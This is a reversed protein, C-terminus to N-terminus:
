DAMTSKCTLLKTLIKILGSINYFIMIKNYKQSGSDSEPDRPLIWSSLRVRWLQIVHSFNQWFKASINSSIMIKKYKQSWSDSEPDRPLIQSSLRIRRLRYLPPLVSWFTSGILLIGPFDIKWFHWTCSFIKKFFFLVM